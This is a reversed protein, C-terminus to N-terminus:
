YLIDQLYSTNKLKHWGQITIMFIETSTGGYENLCKNFSKDNQSYAFM